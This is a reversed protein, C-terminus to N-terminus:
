RREKGEEEEDVYGDKEAEDDDEQAMAKEAARAAEMEMLRQVFSITRVDEKMPAAVVVPPAPPAQTTKMADQQKPPLRAVAFAQLTAIINAARTSKRAADDDGVGVESARNSRSQLFRTAAARRLAVNACTAPPRLGNSAPRSCLLAAVSSWSGRRSTVWCRAWGCRMVAVLSDPM